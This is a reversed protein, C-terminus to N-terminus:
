RVRHEPGQLIRPPFRDFPQEGRVREYPEAGELSPTFGPALLQTYGHIVWATPTVAEIVRNQVYRWGPREAEERAREALSAASAAELGDPHGAHVYWNRDFHEPSTGDAREVFAVVATFASPQGLDARVSSDYIPTSRVRWGQFHGCREDLLEHVPDLAVFPESVEVEVFADVPRLLGEVPVVAGSHENSAQLTVAVGAAGQVLESIRDALDSLLEHQFLEAGLNSKRALTWCIKNL